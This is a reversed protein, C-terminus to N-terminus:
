SRWLLSLLGRMDIGFSSEPMLRCTAGRLGATLAIEYTGDPHFAADVRTTGIEHAEAAATAALILCSLFVTELCRRKTRAEVPSRSKM